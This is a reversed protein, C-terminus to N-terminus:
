ATATDRKKKPAGRSPVPFAAMAQDVTAMLSKRSAGDRAQQAMGAIITAYFDALAGADTGEPVDGEAVGRKIRQRMHERAEARKKALVANLGPSANAATFFAVMLMCGRPHGAGSLLDAKFRLYSEVADKATPQEPCLQDSRSAAYQEITALFLKEKDGFAAYLSPPNIGMASTLDSISAAEYGKTWFVEMAANLAAERDFSRPRGRAKKPPQAESGVGITSAKKM